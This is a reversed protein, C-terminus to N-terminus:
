ISLMAFPENDGLVLGLELSSQASIEVLWKEGHNMPVVIAIYILLM